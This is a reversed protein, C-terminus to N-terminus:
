QLLCTLWLHLVSILFYSSSSSFRKGILHLLGAAPRLPLNVSSCELDKEHFVNISKNLVRCKFSFLISLGNVASQRDNSLNLGPSLFLQFLCSTVLRLNVSPCSLRVSSPIIQTFIHLTMSVFVYTM